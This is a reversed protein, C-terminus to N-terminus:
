KRKPCADLKQYHKSFAIVWAKAGADVKAVQGMANVISAPPKPLKPCQVVVATKTVCGSLLMM